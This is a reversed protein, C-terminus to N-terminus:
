SNKRWIEYDSPEMIEYGVKDVGACVKVIVDATSHYASFKRALEAQYRTEFIYGTWDANRSRFCDNKKM